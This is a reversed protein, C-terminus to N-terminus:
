SRGPNGPRDNPSDRDDAGNKDKEARIMEFEVQSLQQTQYRRKRRDKKRKEKRDFNSYGM